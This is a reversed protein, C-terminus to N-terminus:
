DDANLREAHEAAKLRAVDAMTGRSRGGGRQDESRYTAVLRRNWLSDIVHCSLGPLGPGNGDGIRGELETVVYRSVTGGM